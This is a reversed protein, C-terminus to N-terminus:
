PKDQDVNYKAGQLLALDIEIGTDRQPNRNISTDRRLDGVKSASGQRSARAGSSTADERPRDATITIDQHLGQSISLAAQLDPTRTITLHHLINRLDGSLTMALTVRVGIVEEGELVAQVGRSGDKSESTVEMASWPVEWTQTDTHDIPPELTMEATCQTTGRPFSSYAKYQLFTHNVVALVVIYWLDKGPGFGNFGPIRVLHGLRLVEGLVLPFDLM